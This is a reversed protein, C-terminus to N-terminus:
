RPPTNTLRINAVDITPIADRRGMLLQIGRVERDVAGLADLPISVRRWSGAGIGGWETYGDVQVQVINENDPDRFAVRLPQNSATGGHVDFELRTYGQTSITQGYLLQGGYPGLYRIGLSRAGNPAVPGSQWDASSRWGTLQWGEILDDGLISLAASEPAATVPWANPLIWYLALPRPTDLRELIERSPVNRILPAAPVRVDLDGSARELALKRDTALRDRTETSLLAVAPRPANHLWEATVANDILLGHSARNMELVYQAVRLSSADVYTAGYTALRDDLLIPQGPPSLEIAQEVLSVLPGSTEARAEADAYYEELRPLTRAAVYVAVVGVLLGIVLRGLLPPVAEGRMMVASLRDTFGAVLAGILAYLPPWAPAVYRGGNYEYSFLPMLVVISAVAFLPVWLRAWIAYGVAALVLLGLPVAAPDSPWPLHHIEQVPGVAIGVLDHLMRVPLYALTSFYRLESISAVAYTRQSGEAFSGGPNLINYIIIPSYAVAAALGALYPWPTRVWSRGRATALVALAVGPLLVVATAHSQMSLGLMFGAAILLRPADRNLARAVLLLAITALLPTLTHSWGVHSHTLVHWPAAVLLGAAIVGAVRGGIERGFLYTVTVTLSAAVMVIARPLVPSPGFILSAGAVLYPWIPGYYTDYSTLPFGEGRYIALGFLVEMTEDTFAPAEILMPLRILVALVFFGLVIPVDLLGARWWPVRREEPAEVVPRPVLRLVIASSHRPVIEVPQASM